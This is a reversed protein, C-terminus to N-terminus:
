YEFILINSYDAKWFDIEYLNNQKDLYLSIIIEKNDTDLLKIESIQKGFCRNINYVENKKNILLSFLGENGLKLVQLNDIEFSFDSLNILEKLIKLEQKTLDRFHGMYEVLIIAVM